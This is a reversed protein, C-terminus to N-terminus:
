GDAASVDQYLREFGGIETDVAFRALARERGAMGMRVRLSADCALASLGRALAIADRRPVVFGTVGDEVNEPLGDADSTVVPLSMAQAEVAAYCFGESTAAHLFVDAWQMEERIRTAPQSGLMTVVDQLGLDHVDYVVAERHPGDGIIHYRVDKGEDLLTRVARLAYDYGKKWHLRGVSVLRLPEGPGRERPGPAFVELDIGPLVVVDRGDPVYGRGIGRRRLDESLFHIRSAKQWVEDYYGPDEELGAYNMDAGQFSVVLRAGLAPGLYARGLAFWGFTFHIVDPALVILPHDYYLARFITPGIERWGRRLYALTSVPAQIATRLVVFPLVIIAVLKAVKRPRTHVRRGIEPREAFAPFMAVDARRSEACLVHIDWGRDLLRIFRQFIFTESPTPFRDTV